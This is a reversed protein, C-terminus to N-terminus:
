RPNRQPWDVLLRRREAALRAQYNRIIPTISQAEAGTPVEAARRTNGQAEHFNRGLERGVTLGIGTGMALVDITSGPIGTVTEVVQTVDSTGLLTFPAKYDIRITRGEVMGSGRFFIGTGSPFVTADEDRRVTWGSVDVWERMAYDQAQVSYVAGPTAAFDYGIYASTWTISKTTMQFLGHGYLNDLESNIARLIQADTWRAAVRVIETTTHSVAVTGDVGRDVSAAKPTADTSWVYIDELGISLRTNPQMAGLDYTFTLATQVNDIAASLKNRPEVVGQGLYDRRIRDILQQVTTTV